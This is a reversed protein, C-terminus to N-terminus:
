PQEQPFHTEMKKVETILYQETAELMKLKVEKKEELNVRKFLLYLEQFNM